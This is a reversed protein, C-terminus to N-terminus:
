KKKLLKQELDGLHDLEHMVLTRARWYVSEKRKKGEEQITRAWQAESLGSLVRLLVKRRVNFYALLESFNLLDFRLLKGLDRDPHLDPFYPEQVLLAQYIMEASRAEGNLVHALVETPTREEKGLPQSLTEASVAKTVAALRTPSEALIELVRAINAANLETSLLNTM